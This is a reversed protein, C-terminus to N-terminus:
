FIRYVKCRSKSNRHLIRTYMSKNNNHHKVTKKLKRWCQVLRSYRSKHKEKGDIEVVTASGLTTRKMKESDNVESEEKKKSRLDFLSLSRGYTPRGNVQKVPYVHHFNKCSCDQSDPNNAVDRIFHLDRGTVSKAEM